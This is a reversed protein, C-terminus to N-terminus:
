GVNEREREQGRGEKVKKEGKREKGKKTLHVAPYKAEMLNKSCRTSSTILSTLPLSKSTLFSWPATMNAWSMDPLHWGRGEGAERGRIM